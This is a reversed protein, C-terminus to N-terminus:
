NVRSNNICCVSLPCAMPSACCFPSTSPWPLVHYSAAPRPLSPWAATIICDLGTWASAAAQNGYSIKLPSPVLNTAKGCHVHRIFCSSRTPPPAPVPHLQAKAVGSQVHRPVQVNIAHSLESQHRPVFFKLLKVM